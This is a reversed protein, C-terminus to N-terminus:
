ECGAAKLAGRAVQMPCRAVPPNASACDGSCAPCGYGILEWLAEALAPAAAILRANAERQGRDMYCEAARCIITQGRPKPPAVTVGDRLVWWPGPTHSGRVHKVAERGAEECHYLHLGSM